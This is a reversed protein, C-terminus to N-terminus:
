FLQEREHPFGHRQLNAVYFYQLAFSPAISSRDECSRCITRRETALARSRQDLLEVQKAMELWTRALEVYTKRVFMALRECEAAKQRCVAAQEKLESCM